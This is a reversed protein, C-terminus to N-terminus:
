AEPEMVVQATRALYLGVFIVVAGVIKFLTLPEGLFIAAAFSAVVPTLNNYIATRASGIRKVGFNWLIYALVIAFSASYVLGLWGGWTVQTWNQAAVAPITIFLLPVTGFITALAAVSLSSYRKLLPASLVSYLSWCVTAGLIMADGLWARSDSSFNGSALVILALGSFSLALGIWGRVSFREHHLVRNLLVVFAPTSALILASNSAQTYALGTLFLPQYLATGIIGLLAIKGWAHRPIGFGQRRVHVVLFFLVSATLFRLAMFAFPTIELFTTKVVVFNLGWILSMALLALDTLGFSIESKPNQIESKM